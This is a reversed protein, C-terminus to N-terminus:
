FINYILAYPGWITRKKTAEPCGKGFLLCCKTRITKTKRSVAGASFISKLLVRIKSKRNVGISEFIRVTDPLPLRHGKEQWIIPYM